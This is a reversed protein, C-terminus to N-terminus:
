FIQQLKRASQLDGEKFPPSLQLIRCFSLKKRDQESIYAYRICHLREKENPQYMMGQSQGGQSLLKISCYSDVRAGICDAKYGRGASLDAIQTFVTISKNNKRKEQEIKKNVEDVFEDSAFAMFLLVLVSVVNLIPCVYVFFREGLYLRKESRKYRKYNDRFLINMSRIAIWCLICVSIHFKLLWM